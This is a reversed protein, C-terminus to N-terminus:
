LLLFQLELLPFSKGTTVLRTLSWAAIQCVTRERVKGQGGQTGQQLDGGQVPDQGGPACLAARASGRLMFQEPGENHGGGRPM